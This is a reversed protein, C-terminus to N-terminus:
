KKAEAPKRPMKSEAETNSLAPKKPEIVPRKPGTGCDILMAGALDRDVQSVLAPDEFSPQAIEVATRETLVM